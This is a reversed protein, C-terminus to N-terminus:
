GCKPGRFIVDSVTFNFTSKASEVFYVANGLTNQVMLLNGSLGRVTNFAGVSSGVIGLKQHRSVVAARVMEEQIVFSAERETEESREDVTSPPTWNLELFIQPLGVSAEESGEVLAKTGVDLVNFWGSITGNIALSSFPIVVEGLTHESGPILNFVDKFKVQVVIAAPSSSWPKLVQLDDRVAAFPQLVPYEVGNQGGKSGSSEFFKGHNPLLLKLRKATESETMREWTPNTMFVYDTSGIEHTAQMSQDLSVAREKKEEPMSRVPDWMVLCGAGGPLGLEHSRISRGRKVSVNLLGVPRHLSYKVSVKEAKGLSDVERQIFRAKPTGRSRILARYLMYVILFFVPVNGFYAPDFRRCFTLFVVLSLSTLAPNKWSVTYQYANIGKRIDEILYSIRALHLQFMAMNLDDAPRAPCKYPNRGFLRHM